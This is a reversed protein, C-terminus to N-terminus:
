CSRLYQQTGKFDGKNGGSDLYTWHVNCVYIEYHLLSFSFLLMSDSDLNNWVILIFFLSSYVLGTQLLPLFVFLYIFDISTM